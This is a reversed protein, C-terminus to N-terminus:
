RYWLGVPGKITVSYSYDLAVVPDAWYHIKVYLSDTGIRSDSVYAAGSSGSPQSGPHQADQIEYKFAISDVVWGNRLTPGVVKGSEDKATTYENDGKIGFPWPFLASFLPWYSYSGGELTKFELSPLFHFPVFNSRGHGFTVYVAGSFDRTGEVVPVSSTITTPTVKMMGGPIDMDPRVIYHVEISDGFGTGTVIVTDGPQGESVSLSTITPPAPPAVATFQVASSPAAPPLLLRRSPAPAATTTASPQTPAQRLQRASPALVKQREAMNKAYLTQRANAFDKLDSSIRVQRAQSSVQAREAIARL